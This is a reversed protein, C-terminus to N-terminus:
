EHLRNITQPHSPGGRGMPGPAACRKWVRLAAVAATDNLSLNGWIRARLLGAFRLLVIEIHSHRIRHELASHDQHPLPPM